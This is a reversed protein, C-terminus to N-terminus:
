KERRFMTLSRGSGPRSAFETPRAGTLAGCHKFTVGELEYIALFKEGKQAGGTFTYDITKPKKGPDLVATGEGVVKGEVEVKWKGAGDVILKIKKAEEAPMEKGDDIESVLNWTGQLRMLEAAVDEGRSTAATLLVALLPSVLLYTRVRNGGSVTPRM